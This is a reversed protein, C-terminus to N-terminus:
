QSYELSKHIYYNRTDKDSSSGTGSIKGHMDTIAIIMNTKGPRLRIEIVAEGPKEKTNYTFNANSNPNEMLHGDLWLNGKWNGFTEIRM